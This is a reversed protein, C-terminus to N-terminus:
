HIVPLSYIVIVFKADGRRELVMPIADILLDIGKQVTHRGVFLFFPDMPGFGMDMKVNGSWEDCWEMKAINDAVIGNYVVRIKDGHM